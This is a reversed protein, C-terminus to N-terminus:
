REANAIRMLTQRGGENLDSGLALPDTQFLLLLPIFHPIGALADRVSHVKRRRPPTSTEVPVRLRSYRATAGLM